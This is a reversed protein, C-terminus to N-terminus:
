TDDTEPAPLLGAEVMEWYVADLEGPSLRSIQEALAIRRAENEDM